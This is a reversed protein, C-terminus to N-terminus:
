DHLSEGHHSSNSLDKLIFRLSKSVAKRLSKAHTQTVENSQCASMPCIHRDIVACICFKANNHKQVCM